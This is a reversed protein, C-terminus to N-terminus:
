KTFTFSVVSLISKHFEESYTLVNILIYLFSFPLFIARKYKLLLYVLSKHKVAAQVGNIEAHLGSIKREYKKRGETFSWWQQQQPFIGQIKVIFEFFKIKEKAGKLLSCFLKILFDGGQCECFIGRKQTLFCLLNKIMAIKVNLSKIFAFSSSSFFSSTM